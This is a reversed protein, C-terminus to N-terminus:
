REEIPQYKFFAKARAVSKQYAGESFAHRYKQYFLDIGDQKRALNNNVKERNHNYHVVGINELVKIKWGAEHQKRVHWLFRIMLDRDTTNPLSEDFGGADVLCATKFFMNSGQVGPNGVFFNEPTLNEATLPLHMESGDWNEWYLRQFVAATKEDVATMCDALHHPLYADDDDLISIFGDQHARLTEFIGTNWAGTGSMFRTRTNRIVRTPFFDGPLNLDNRLAKGKRCIRDLEEMDENDDVILVSVNREDVAQQRYISLLSREILWATRNFSTAILTTLHPLM